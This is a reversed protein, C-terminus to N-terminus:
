RSTVVTNGHIHEVVQLTVPEAVRAFLKAGDAPPTQDATARQREWSAVVTFGFRCWVDQLSTPPGSAQPDSAPAGWKDPLGEAGTPIDSLGVVVEFQEDVTTVCSAKWAEYVADLARIREELARQIDRLSRLQPGLVEAKGPDDILAGMVGREKERALTRKGALETREDQEAKHAEGYAAEHPDTAEDTHPGRRVALLVGALTAGAAVLDSGAGTSETTAKVLRGDETTSLNAKYQFLWGGRVTVTRPTGLEAGHRVEIAHGVLKAPMHKLLKDPDVVSDHTRRTAGSIVLVARPLRYSITTTRAM